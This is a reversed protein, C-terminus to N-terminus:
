HNQKVLVEIKRAPRKQSKVIIFFTLILFLLFFLIERNTIYSNLYLTVLLWNETAQKDIHYASLMDKISEYSGNHPGIETIELISCMLVYL